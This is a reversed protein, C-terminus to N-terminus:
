SDINKRSRSIAFIVVFMGAVLATVIAIVAGFSIQEM